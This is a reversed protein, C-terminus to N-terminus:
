HFSGTTPTNGDIYIHYTTVLLRDYNYNDVSRNNLADPKVEVVHCDLSPPYKIPTEFALWNFGQMQRLLACRVHMHQYAHKDKGVQGIYFIFM